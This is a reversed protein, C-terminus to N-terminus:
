QLWQLVTNSPSAHVRIMPIAGAARLADSEVTGKPLAQLLLTLTVFRKSHVSREFLESLSVSVEAGPEPRSTDSWVRMAIAHLERRLFTRVESEALYHNSQSVDAIFDHAAFVSALEDANLEVIHVASTRAKVLELVRDPLRNQNHARFFCSRTVAPAKADQHYREAERVIADWRKWHDKAEFGFLEERDGIKCRVTLYGKPSRIHEVSAALSPGFM